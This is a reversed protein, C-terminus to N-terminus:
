KRYPLTSVAQGNRRLEFHLHPPDLSEEGQPQALRGLIAGARVTQGLRLHVGELGAYVTEVGAGHDLRVELGNVTGQRVEAVTGSLAATVPSGVPARIDVGPHWRWDDMTPSYAWGTERVM